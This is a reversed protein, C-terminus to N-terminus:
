SSQFWLAKPIYGDVSSLPAPSIAVSSRVSSLGSAIPCSGDIRYVLAAALRAEETDGLPATFDDQVSCGPLQSGDLPAFTVPAFGDSYDGFGKSKAGRFQISFWTTGCNDFPYFGFPKGCTASGIQIVEVDIGTLGNIISESASCTGPGTLVFV